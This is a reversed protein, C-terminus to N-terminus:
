DEDIFKEWKAFDDNLKVIDKYEKFAQIFAQNNLPIVLVKQNNLNFPKAYKLITRGIAILFRAERKRYESEVKRKLAQLKQKEKALKEKRKEIEQMLQELSKRKPM